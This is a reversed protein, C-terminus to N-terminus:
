KQLAYTTAGCNCISKVDAAKIGNTSPELEERGVVKKKQKELRLLREVRSPRTALKRQTFIQKRM